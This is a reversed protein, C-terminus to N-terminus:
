ARVWDWVVVGDCDRVELRSVEPAYEPDTLYCRAAAIANPLGRTESGGTIDCGDSDLVRVKYWWDRNRASV